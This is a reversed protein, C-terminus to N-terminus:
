EVIRFGASYIPSAAEAERIELVFDGPAFRDAPVLLNIAEDSADWLAGASSEILWRANPEGAARLAVVLRRDGPSLSLDYEIRVPQYRQGPQVRISPPEVPPADDGRAPPALNLASVPGGAWSGSSGAGSGGLQALKEHALDCERVVQPLRIVGLYAPYALLIVMMAPVLAPIPAPPAGGRLVGALARWPSTADAEAKRVAAAERRCTPCAGVHAAVRARESNPVAAPDLAFEVLLAPAVHDEFLAGRHASVEAAIRRHLELADRCAACERTHREVEDARGRELRGGALDPLLLSAEDHDL